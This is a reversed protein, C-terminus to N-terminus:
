FRMTAREELANMLAYEVVKAISTISSRILEGMMVLKWLLVVKM